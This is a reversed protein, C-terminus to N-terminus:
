QKTGYKYYYNSLKSAGAIKQDGSVAYRLLLQKAKPFDVGLRWEVEGGGSGKTEVLDENEVLDETEVTEEKERVTSTGTEMPQSEDTFKLRLAVPQTTLGRLARSASEADEWM